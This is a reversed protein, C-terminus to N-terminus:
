KNNITSVGGTHKFQDHIKKDVLLMTKGDEHHHWTYGDPPKNPKPVPPNSNKNLKAAENAAKFDAPRNTPKAVNIEVPKV